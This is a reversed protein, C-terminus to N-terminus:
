DIVYEVYGSLTKGSNVAAWDAVAITVFITEEATLVTGFNEVLTRAFAFECPTLAVATAAKYKAVTGTIGLAVTSGALGIGDHAFYGGLVRALPPLRVLEVTDSTTPAAAGAATAEITYSFYNRRVRSHSKDVPLPDIPTLALQTQEVSKFIAM